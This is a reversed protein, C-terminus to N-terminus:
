CTRRSSKADMGRQGHWIRGTIGDDRAFEKQECVEIFEALKPDDRHWSSCLRLRTEDEGPLWATGVVWGTFQCVLELAAGLGSALDSNEILARYLHLLLESEDLARQKASIEGQLTQEVETLAPM